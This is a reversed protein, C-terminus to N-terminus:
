RRKAEDKRLKEALKRMLEKVEDIDERLHSLSERKERPLAEMEDLAKEIIHLM